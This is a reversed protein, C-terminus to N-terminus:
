GFINFITEVQKKSFSGGIYIGIKKQHPEFWTRLTKYSIGYHDKIEKKSMPKAEINKKEM